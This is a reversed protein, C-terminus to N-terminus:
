FSILIAETSQIDLGEALDIEEEVIKGTPRADRTEFSQGAFTLNDLDDAHNLLLRKATAKNGGFGSDRSLLLDIHVSPRVGTSSLLWAHLNVFVARKLTNGEYVAYGSVNEDPVPLETVKASGSNGILSNVLIGAYYSPTVHPPEPPDLPSNDIISRNLAIPVM